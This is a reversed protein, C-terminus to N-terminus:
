LEEPPALFEGLSMADHIDAASSAQQYLQTLDVPQIPTPLTIPATVLTSKRFCNYITTSSVNTYWSRFVWRLALHVNMYLKYLILKNRLVSSWTNCGIVVIILKSIRFSGKILLSFVVQQTELSGASEFM